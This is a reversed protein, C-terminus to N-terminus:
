CARAALNGSRRPCTFPLAQTKKGGARQLEWLSRHASPLTTGVHFLLSFGKSFGAALKELNAEKILATQFTVVFAMKEKPYVRPVRTLNVFSPIGM